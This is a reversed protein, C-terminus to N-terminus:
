GYTNDCGLEVMHITVALSLWINQLLWVSGYTKDCGFQVMHITVAL